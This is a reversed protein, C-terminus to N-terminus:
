YKADAIDPNDNIEVKSDGRTNKQRTGNSKRKKERGAPGNKRGKELFNKLIKSKSTPKRQIGGTYSGPSSPLDTTHAAHQWIASANAIICKHLKQKNNRDM